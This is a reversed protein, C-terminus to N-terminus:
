WPLQLLALVAWTGIFHRLRWALKYEQRGRSHTLFVNWGGLLYTKKATPYRWILNDEALSTDIRPM